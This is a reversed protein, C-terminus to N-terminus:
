LKTAGFRFWMLSTVLVWELVDQIKIFADKQFCLLFRWLQCAGPLTEKHINRKRLSHRNRKWMSVKCSVRNLMTHLSPVDSFELFTEIQIVCFHDYHGNWNLLNTCEIWLWIWSTYITWTHVDSFEMFCRCHILFVCYSCILMKMSRKSL